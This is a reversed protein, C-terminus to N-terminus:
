APSAGYAALLKRRGRLAALAAAVEAQQAALALSLERYLQEVTRWPERLQPTEPGRDAALARVCRDTEDFLAVAAALQGQRVLALQRALLERLGDLLSGDKETMTRGSTTM